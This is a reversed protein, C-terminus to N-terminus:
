RKGRFAADGGIIEQTEPLQIGVVIPAAAQLVDGIRRGPAPLSLELALPAAAGYQTIANFAEPLTLEVVVPVAAVDIRETLSRLLLWSGLGAPM